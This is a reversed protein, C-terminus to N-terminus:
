AVGFALPPHVPFLTEISVIRNRDDTEVVCFNREAIDHDLNMFRAPAASMLEWTDQWPCHLMESARVVADIPTLASGAFLPKGPQRVIRDEGVELELAGISYRGPPAGAAAMADTTFFLRDDPVLCRHFARLTAGPVHAGDVIASCTLKSADLARWVINDTRDMERPCGNGLHTFGSAGADTAALITDAHANTHGLAVTMGLDVAARISDISGDREPALTLLLPLDGAAERLEDIHAPTPDIMATADHAGAYGPEASLFPGEVHWGAIADRFEADGNSMKAFHRLRALLASWEDTILTLLFRSCGYKRLARVARRLDEIRVNDQQFDVGAFGNIQLDFLPPAIWLNAEPLTIGSDQVSVTGTDRNLAFVASTRYDRIRADRVADGEHREAYTSEPIV